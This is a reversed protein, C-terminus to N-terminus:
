FATLGQTGRAHPSSGITQDKATPLMAHEGRMRPHVARAHSQRRPYQTNGACAPIFRVVWRKPIRPNYHEGRMRPHVAEPWMPFARPWTNGACAPIFRRGAAPGYRPCPTGRAHPSSGHPAWMAPAAIAHEGRMRPHVAAVLNSLALQLTNGACAPIFRRCWGLPHCQYPTGRAHPSSGYAGHAHGLENGHEGRM